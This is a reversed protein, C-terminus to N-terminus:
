PIVPITMLMTMMMLLLLHPLLQLLHQQKMPDPAPLGMDQQSRLLQMMLFATLMEGTSPLSGMVLVMGMGLLAAAAAAEVPHNM